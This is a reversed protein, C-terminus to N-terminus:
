PHEYEEIIKQYTGDSKIVQLGSNFENVKQEYDPYNKSFANYYKSVQLPPELAVLSDMEDPFQNRLYNLIVKRQEVILEVRGRLLKKINMDPTAVEEKQLYDAADFEESIAAGRIMGIRYPKLDELKSYVIDSDKRKFFVIETQGVSETYAMKEAREETYYAAMLAENRGEMVMQLARKWPMYEVAAEYGVRRCAEKTIAELYGGEKHEDTFFEITKEQAAAVGSLQFVGVFVLFYLTWKLKM